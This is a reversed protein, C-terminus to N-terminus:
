RYFVWHRSVRFQVVTMALIVAFLLMAVASAYGLRLSKFGLEYIYMVVTRSADGPGGGTLMYPQDFLQFVAVLGKVVVFFVTPSLHPLTIHRFRALPDAGDIEAAEYLAQPISQLAALFIIMNFGVGNWVTIIITAFRVWTASVLWPIRPLGFQSLLWNVLGIDANLLYRWVIAIVAGSILVPFFFTLRFLLRLAKPIFSNLALALTMAWVLDLTVMGLAYFATVGFIRLIRDDSLIQYLNGLGVFRPPTFLDHAFFSLGLGGGLAGLTFCLFCFLTPAILVLAWAAELRREARPRRRQRAQRRGALGDELGQAM